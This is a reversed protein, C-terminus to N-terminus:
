EKEKRISRQRGKFVMNYASSIIPLVGILMVCDVPFQIANKLLRAPYKVLVSGFVLAGAELSNTVVLALPTLILNCVVVVSLKALVIRLIQKASQKQLSKDRIETRSLKLKYLFLGYLMAGTAEVLTFLPSFTGTPKIAFSILDSLAGAIFGVTPGYLMGISAKALFAFSVKLDSMVTITISKIALDLAILLATVVICRIDKLEEASKKFSRLFAM